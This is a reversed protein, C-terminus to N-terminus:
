ALGTKLAIEYYDLVEDLARDYYYVNDSLVDETEVETMNVYRVMNYLEAAINEDFSENEDLVLILEHVSSPLIYFNRDYKRALACLLGPNLMVSAGYTKDKNTLIKLFPIQDDEKAEGESGDDQAERRGSMIYGFIDDLVSMMPVLEYDGSKMANLCAAEYLDEESINWLSVHDNKIMIIGEFAKDSVKSYYLVALDKFRRHPFGEIYEKNKKYNVLKMRVRDRVKDFDRYYGVEFHKDGSKKRADEVRDIIEMFSTGDKFAEYMPELYIVESINSGPCIINLCNYTVGNNKDVKCTKVDCEPHRESMVSVVQECFSKFEM